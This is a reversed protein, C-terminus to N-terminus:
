TKKKKEAQSFMYFLIIQLNLKKEKFVSLMFNDLDKKEM